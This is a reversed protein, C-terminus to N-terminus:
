YKFRGYICRERYLRLRNGKVLTHQETGIQGSLYESKNPFHTKNVANTVWQRLSPVVM